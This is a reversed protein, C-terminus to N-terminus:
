GGNRRAIDFREGCDDGDDSVHKGDPKAEAPAFTHGGAETNKEDGRGPSRKGGDSEKDHDQQYGAVDRQSRNEAGAAEREECPEQNASVLRSKENGRLDDNSQKDDELVVLVNAAEGISSFVAEAATGVLPPGCSGCRRGRLPRM